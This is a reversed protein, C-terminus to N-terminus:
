SLKPCTGSIALLTPLYAIFGHSPRDKYAPPFYKACYHMTATSLAHHSRLSRQNWRIHFIKTRPLGKPARLSHHSLLFTHLAHRGAKQQYLWHTARKPPKKWRTAGSPALSREAGYPTVMPDRHPLVNQVMPTVMPDPRAAWTTAALPRPRGPEQPGLRTRMSKSLQSKRDRQRKALCSYLM